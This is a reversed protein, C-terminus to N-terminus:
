VRLEWPPMLAGELSGGEHCSTRLRGGSIKDISNEMLQNLSDGQRCFLNLNGWRLTRCKPSRVLLDFCVLQTCGWQLDWM